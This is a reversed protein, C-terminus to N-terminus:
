IGAIDFTRDNGAFPYRLLDDTVEGGAHLIGAVASIGSRLPFRFQYLDSLKTCLRFCAISVGQNSYGSM